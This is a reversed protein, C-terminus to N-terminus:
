EGVARVLPAHCEVGIASLADRVVPDGSFVPLTTRRCYDAVADIRAQRTVGLIGGDEFRFILYPQERDSPSVSIDLFDRMIM